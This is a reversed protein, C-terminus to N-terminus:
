ASENRLPSSRKQCVFYVRPSGPLVETNRPDFIRKIEFYKKVAQEIDSLPFSAELIDAEHRRYLDSGVGEFIQLHWNYLHDETQIIDTLLYNGAFEEVHTSAQALRELKALTNIDFIFLGQANLHQDVHQFLSQWQVFTTLHNVSDYVCFILDFSMPLSFASMDGQYFTAAPVKKRAIELMEESLDLGVIQYSPRLLKLVAGTGCALELVQKVQPHWEQILTELLASTSTPEGQMADYFRAFHDYDPM